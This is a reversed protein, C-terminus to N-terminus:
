LSFVKSQYYVKAVVGWRLQIIFECSCTENVFGSGPACRCGSGLATWIGGMSCILKRANEDESVANSACDATYPVPRGTIPAIVEPASILRITQRRCVRYFVIMRTIIICSTEDQVAFYFSSQETTFTVRITENVRVGSADDPSVRQVQRYNSLNRKANDDVSSTEYIHTNFTRQCNLEVNCDRQEFEVIM